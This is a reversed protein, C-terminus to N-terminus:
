SLPHFKCVEIRFNELNIQRYWETSSVYRHGAMYQVRRIDYKKLWEAIVSQRIQIANKLNANESKLNLFLHHLTNKLNLSGATSLLLQETNRAFNENFPKRGSMNRYTGALIRPRINELYKLIDIVQLAELELMRPTSGRRWGKTRDAKIFITGEELKLDSLTLRHLEGTSLGQFIVFGLMVKNRISGPSNGTLRYYLEIIEKRSLLDHILRKSKNKIRIRKAPNKVTPDNLILYEFYYSIAVLIRNICRKTNFSHTLNLMMEDIFEIIQCYDCQSPNLSKKKLWQIFFQTNQEHQKISSSSLGLDYLYNRYANM